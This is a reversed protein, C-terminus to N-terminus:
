TYRVALVKNMRVGKALKGEIAEDKTASLRAAKKRARAIKQREKAAKKRAKKEAKTEKKNRKLGLAEGPASDEADEEDYEEDQVVVEKEEAIPKTDWVPFGKKNLRIKKGGRQPARLLTPHNETDTYTSIISMADYEPRVKVPFLEAIKYPDEIVDRKYRPKAKESQNHEVAAEVEADHEAMREMAQKAAERFSLKEDKTLPAKMHRFMKDRQYTAVLGDYDVEAPAETYVQAQSLEGIQDDDFEAMKAAFEDDLMTHPRTDEDSSSEDEEEGMEEMMAMIQMESLGDFDGFTYEEEEMEGDEGYLVEEPEEDQYKSEPIDGSMAVAFFDDQIEEYGLNTERDADDMAEFFDETIEVGTDVEKLQELERAYKDRLALDRTFGEDELPVAKMDREAVHVSDEVEHMIRDPDISLLHQAYDYDHTLKEQRLEAKSKPKLRAYPDFKATAEEAFLMDESIGSPLQFDGHPQLLNRVATQENGDADDAFASTASTPAAVLTFTIGKKKDIFKKKGPM